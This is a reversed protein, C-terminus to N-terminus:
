EHKHKAIRNLDCIIYWFMGIFYSSGLIFIILKVTRFVYIIYLQTNILTKDLYM